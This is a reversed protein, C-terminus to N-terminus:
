KKIIFAIPSVNGIEINLQDIHQNLYQIEYDTMCNSQIQKTENFSYLMALTDTDGPRTYNPNGSTHLDEIVFVGGPKLYKFMTALTIQQQHMMHGGDDIIIDYSNFTKSVLTELQNRDSQDCIHIQTNPLDIHSLDLIDAGVLNGTEFYERWMRISEGEWLGIELFNELSNRYKSFYKEYIELYNHYVSGKDSRYQKSIEELSKKMNKNTTLNM